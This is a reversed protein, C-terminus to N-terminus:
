AINASWGRGAEGGHLLLRGDHRMASTIPAPKADSGVASVVRRETDVLIFPPLEAHEPTRRTCIATADCELVTTMACLLPRAGDPAQAVAPGASGPGGLLILLTAVGTVRNM